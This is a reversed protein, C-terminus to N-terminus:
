LIRCSYYYSTSHFGVLRLLLFSETYRQISTYEVVICVHKHFIIICLLLCPCQDTHLSYKSVFAYAQMHQRFIRNQYISFEMQVIFVINEQAVFSPYMCIHTQVIIISGSQLNVRNWIRSHQLVYSYVYVLKIDALELADNWVHWRHFSYYISFCMIYLLLLVHEHRCKLCVDVSKSIFPLWQAVPSHARHIQRHFVATMMYISVHCM